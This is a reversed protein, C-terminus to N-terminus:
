NSVNAVDKYMSAIEWSEGHFNKGCYEFAESTTNFPGYVMVGRVMSGVLVCFREEIKVDERTPVM